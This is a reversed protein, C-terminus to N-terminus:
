KLLRKYIEERDEEAITENILTQVSDLIEQNTYKINHKNLIAELGKVKLLWTSAVLYKEKM